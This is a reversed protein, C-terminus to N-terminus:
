GAAVAKIDEKIRGIAVGKIRFTLLAFDMPDIQSIAFYATQTGLRGFTLLAITEM